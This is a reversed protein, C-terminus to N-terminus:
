CKLKVARHRQLPHFYYKCSNVFLHVACFLKGNLSKKLLHSWIRLKRGIQDCKSFFEKISFTMKQATILESVLCSIHYIAVDFYFLRLDM